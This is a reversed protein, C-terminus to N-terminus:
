YAHEAGGDNVFADVPISCETESIVKMGASEMIHNVTPLDINGRGNMMQMYTMLRGPNFLYETGGRSKCIRGLCLHERPGMRAETFFSALMDRVLQDAGIRKAEKVTCHEMAKNLISVWENDRLTRAAIHLQALCQQRFSRQALLDATSDFKLIQGNIDWEWMSDSGGKGDVYQTLDGYSLGTASPTNIGLRQGRCITKNCFDALSACPYFYTKREIGALVTTRLEQEPLPDDMTTNIDLLQEDITQGKYKLSLFVALALFWNNRSGRPIHQLCLGSAVCPPAEWWPKDQMIQEHEDLMRRIDRIRDVADGTSMYSMDACLAKRPNESNAEDFFPMNIWSYFRNTASTQTQKPFVEVSAPCRFWSAYQKLIRSVHEAPVPEAFFMFLHLHKSKSYCPLLPLDWKYIAAVIDELRGNYNDIDIAGWCCTGDEQLPAIGISMSGNLHRLWLAPTLEGAVFKCQAAVKGTEDTAGTITTGFGRENGRFATFLTSIDVASIGM